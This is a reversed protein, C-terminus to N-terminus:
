SSFLREFQVHGFKRKERLTDAIAALNQNEPIIREPHLHRMEDIGITYYGRMGTQSYPIVKLTCVGKQKDVKMVQVISDIFSGDKTPFARVHLLHQNVRVGEIDM